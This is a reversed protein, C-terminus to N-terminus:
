EAAGDMWAQGPRARLDWRERLARAARGPTLGGRESFAHCLAAASRFGSLAAVQSLPLSPLSLLQHATAIRLDGMTERWGQANLGMKRDLEGFARRAQRESVNLREALEPLSPHHHLSSRVEGLARYIEAEGSPGVATDPEIRPTGRTVGLASLQAVLDIAWRQHEGARLGRVYRSLIATDRAGLRGLRAVGCHRPGLADDEWDLVLVRAPEGAYGEDDHLRQDSRVVDGPGLTFTRGGSVFYGRGSLLISLQSRHQRAIYRVLPAQAGWDVIMRQIVLVAIGFGPGRVTETAMFADTSPVVLRGSQSLV